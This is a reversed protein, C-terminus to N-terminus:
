RVGKQVNMFDLYTPYLQVDRLEDSMQKMEEIRSFKAALYFKKM